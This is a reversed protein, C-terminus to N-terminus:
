SFCFINVKSLLSNLPSSIALYLINLLPQLTSVVRNVWLGRVLVRRCFKLSSLFMNLSFDNVPNTVTLAELIHLEKGWTTDALLISVNLFLEIALEVVGSLWECIPWSWIARTLHQLPLWISKLKLITPLNSEELLWTVQVSLNDLISGEAWSAM